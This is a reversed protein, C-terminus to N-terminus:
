CRDLPPPDPIPAGIDQTWLLAGTTADLAYLNGSSSGIFVYNNVVIPATVLGGDGAFSWIVQSNSLAIGRLLSNYLIFATSATVAPAASASYTAIPTGNEPAYVVGSYIDPYTGAGIPSYLEGSAVVPTEGLGGSCGTNNTWIVAGSVPQLDVTNCSSSAYVGDVSVAISGPIASDISTQWLMAGNSESFAMASYYVNVLLYVIGQAAVPAPRRSPRMQTEVSWIRLGSAADLATLVGDSSNVFIKGADYTLGASGGFSLPGWLMAGTAADLALLESTGDTDIENNTNAMVYVRGGVILANSPAGGINISWSAAAPLTASRFNITGSHGNDIQYSVADISPAVITLTLPSSTGGQITPNVVTISVSGTNAVQAASVAAQLTSGSIYSTSLASGNWEVISNTSFGSGFVTLTFAVNGASVTAPSLSALALAPWPQVVLSVPNSAVNGSVPDSVTIADTGTAAVDLASLQAVLQGRANMTTPRASGNFYVVSTSTFYQGTVTVTLAGEDVLVNAPSVSNTM